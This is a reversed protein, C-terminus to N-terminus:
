RSRSDAKCRIDSVADILLRATGFQVWDGTTYNWHPTSSDKDFFFIGFPGSFGSFPRYGTPPERGNGVIIYEGDASIAISAVDNGTSYNWLPVGSYKSFLYVKNDDSGAAIYKGDASIAVSRVWGTNANAIM